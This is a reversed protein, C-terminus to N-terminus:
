RRWQLADIVRGLAKSNKRLMDLDNKEWAGINLTLILFLVGFLVTSVLTRWISSPDHLALEVVGAHPTGEAEQRDFWEFARDYSVEALLEQASARVQSVTGPAGEITTKWVGDFAEVVNYAIGLMGAEMAFNRVVEAQAERSPYADHFNNGGSPWGVEGVFLPKGPHAKRVTDLRDRIWTLANEVPVGEWYPLVHVGMFDSADITEKAKVIESWVDATGVPIRAPLAARVRKIYAALEADTVEARLLAENGVVVRDIGRVTYALEIARAIERENRAKDDSIWLGLTVDLGQRAAIEPVEGQSGLSSYTRVGNAFGSIASMDRELEITPVVPNENPDYDRGSPSYSVSEIRGPAAEVPVPANRWSWFSVHGATVALLAAAIVVSRKSRKPTSM